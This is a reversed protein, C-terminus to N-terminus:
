QHYRSPKTIALEKKTVLNEFNKTSHYYNTLSLKFREAGSKQRKRHTQEM